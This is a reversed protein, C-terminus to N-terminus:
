GSGAGTAPKATPAPTTRTLATHRYDRPTLGYAACFARTFVEHHGFGCRSAVRHVPVSRQAPDGLILRARELRQRRIWGGVTAGPMHTRFLRHLYSLSIHHAAAVTRPTLGPDHLQRRIFSQVELALTRSRTEPPLRDEAETEHALLASLLDVLVTELRPLDAATYSGTEETLSTLFGALLSGIGAHGTMRRGLVRDVRDPSLALRASPVDVSVARVVEGRIGTRVECPRSSHNTRFEYPGFVSDGRDMFSGVTGNVIMSLHFVEPDSRRILRPTRRVEVPAFVSPWVFANGLRLLRLEAYYDAVPRGGLDLPAHMRSLHERLAEGRDEAPLDETRFLTEIM